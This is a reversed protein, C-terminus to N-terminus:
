DRQAIFIFAHAPPPLLSSVQSWPMDLLDSLAIVLQAPSYFRRNIYICITALMTTNVTMCDHKVRRRPPYRLLQASCMWCLGGVRRGGGM